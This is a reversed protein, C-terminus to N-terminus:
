CLKGKTSTGDAFRAELDNGSGLPSLATVIRGDGALVGGLGVPIGARSIVVVGKAARAEPAEVKADAAGKADKPDLAAKGEGKDAKEKKAKGTPAQQQQPAKDAGDPLAASPAVAGLLVLGITYGFRGLRHQRANVPATRHAVSVVLSAAPM